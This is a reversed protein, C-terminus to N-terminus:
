CVWYLYNYRWVRCSDTPGWYMWSSYVPGPSNYRYRGGYPFFYPTIPGQDAHGCLDASAGLPSGAREGIHRRSGCLAAVLVSRDAFQIGHSGGISGPLIKIAPAQLNMLEKDPHYGFDFPRRAPALTLYAIM